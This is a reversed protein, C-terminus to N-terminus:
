FLDATTMEGNELDREETGAVLLFRDTIVVIIRVHLRLHNSVLSRFHEVLEILPDTAINGDGM